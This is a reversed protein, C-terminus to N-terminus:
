PHSATININISINITNFFNPDTFFSCNHLLAFKKTSQFKETSTPIKCTIKSEVIYIALYDSFNLDQLINRRPSIIYVNRSEYNLLRSWHKEVKKAERCGQAKDQDKDIKPPM